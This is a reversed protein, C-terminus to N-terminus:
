RAVRVRHRVKAKVGSRDRVTLTVTYTGPRRFRHSVRRGKAKKGDGFNWSWSVVKGGKESSKRGDFLVKQGARPRRTRIKFVAHPAAKRRAEGESFFPQKGGRILLRPSISGCDGPNAVSAVEVGNDDGWALEGGEPSFSPSLQLPTSTSGAPLGVKCRLTWGSSEATGLSDSTYLWLTVNRPKGDPFGSSDDEFVAFKTGDRSIVAQAGTGTMSPENWGPGVDDGASVEHVFWRAQTDTVTPGVHSVLFHSSDVWYPQFFDEQGLSQNPFNLRTSGAPTWMATINSCAFIGYAIKSADPSVRVNTPATAPCSPSSYSGYTPTFGSLQRGSRTFRYLETSGDSDTGDPNVRQKGGAVVVTGNDAESPWAWNNTRSTFQRAHSGDEDATWVHGGKIFVITHAQAAAPLAAGLATGLVLPLLIKRM